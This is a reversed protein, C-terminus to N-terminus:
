GGQLATIAARFLGIRERHLDVADQANERSVRVYGEPHGVWTKVLPPNEDENRELNMALHKAALYAHIVKKAQDVRLLGVKDLMKDYVETEARVPVDFYDPTEAILQQRNDYSDVLFQLEAVLASRIVERDHDRKSKRDWWQLLANGCLAFIVGVLALAGTFIGAYDKLTPYSGLWALIVQM